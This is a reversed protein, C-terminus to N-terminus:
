EDRLRMVQIESGTYSDWKAAIKIADELSAGMSMAGLAFEGGSGIAYCDNEVAYPELHCDYLQIVGDHTLELASFQSESDLEPKDGGRKWALFKRGLGSEGACGFISGGIRYLKTTIFNATHTAQKDACMMERNCVITTM